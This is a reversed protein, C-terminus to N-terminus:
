HGRLNLYCQSHLDNNPIQFFHGFAGVRCVKLDKLVRREWTFLGPGPCLSVPKSLKRKRYVERVLEGCGSRKDSDGREKIRGEKEKLQVLRM